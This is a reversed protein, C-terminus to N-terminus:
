FNPIANTSYPAVTSTLDLKPTKLYPVSVGLDRSKARGLSLAGSPIVREFAWATLIATIERHRSAVAGYHTKRGSSGV